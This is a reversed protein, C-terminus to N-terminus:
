RLRAAGPFMAYFDAEQKSSMPRTREPKPQTGFVPESRIRAAEPFMAAFRADQAIKERQSLPKASRDPRLRSAPATDEDEGTDEYEDIHATPSHEGDEPEEEEEAGNGALSALIEGVEQMEEPDLKASLIAHLRAAPNDQDEDEDDYSVPKERENEVPENLLSADLGLKAMVVQPTGYRRKLVTILEAANM